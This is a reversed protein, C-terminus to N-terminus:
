GCTECLPYCDLKSTEIIIEMPSDSTRSKENTDDEVDLLKGRTQFPASFLLVTSTHRVQREHAFAKLRKTIWM